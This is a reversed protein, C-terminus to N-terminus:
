AARQALSQRWAVLERLAQDRAMGYRRQLASILRETNGHVDALDEDSLRNWRRRAAKMVALWRYSATRMQQAM